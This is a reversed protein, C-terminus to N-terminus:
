NFWKYGCFICNLILSEGEDLSRMQVSRITTEKHGCQRCKYLSSTKLTIKQNLRINLNELLKLNHLPSLDKNDLKSVTSPDIHGRLLCTALHEDGVESSYDLNKTVRTVKSRYLQEFAPTTFEPTLLEYEAVELAHDYCSKELALIMTQHDNVDGDILYESILSAILLIYGRRLTNYSLDEYVTLPLVFAGPDYFSLTVSMSIEEEAHSILFSSRKPRKAHGEEFITYWFQM